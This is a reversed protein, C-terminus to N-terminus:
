KTMAAQTMLSFKEQYLQILSAIQEELANKPLIDGHSLLNLDAIDWSQALRADFHKAYLAVEKKLEEDKFHLSAQQMRDLKEMKLVSLMTRKEMPSANPLSLASAKLEYELDLAILTNEDANKGSGPAMQRLQTFYSIGKKQGADVLSAAAFRVKKTFPSEKQGEVAALLERNREAQLTEARAEWNQWEPSIGARLSALQKLAGKENQYVSNMDNLFKSYEGAEYAKRIAAVAEQGNQLGQVTVGQAPPPASFGTVGLPSVIALLACFLINIKKM